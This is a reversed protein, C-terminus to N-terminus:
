VSCAMWDASWGVGRGYSSYQLNVQAEGGRREWWNVWGNCDLGGGTVRYSGQGNRNLCFTM